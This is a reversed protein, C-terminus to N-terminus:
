GPRIKTRFVNVRKQFVALVSSVNGEGASMAAMQHFFTDESLGHPSALCTM